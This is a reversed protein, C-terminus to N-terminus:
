RTSCALCAASISLELEAHLKNARSYGARDNAINLLGRSKDQLEDRMDSMVKKEIPCIASCTNYDSLSSVFKAAFYRTYIERSQRPSVTGANSINQLFNSFLRKNESKPDGEGVVLLKEFLGTYQSQCDGTLRTEVENIALELRQPLPANCQAIPDVVPKNACASVIITMLALAAYRLLRRASVVPFKLHSTTMKKMIIIARAAGQIRFTTLFIFHNPIGARIQCGYIKKSLLSYNWHVLLPLM